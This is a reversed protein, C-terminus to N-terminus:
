KEIYPIYIFDKPKGGIVMVTGDPDASNYILYLHVKEESLKKIEYIRFSSQGRCGRTYLYKVGSSNGVLNEDFEKVFVDSLYYVEPLDMSYPYPLIRFYITDNVYKQVIIHNDLRWEKSMLLEKATNDQAPLVTQGIMVSLIVVLIKIRM